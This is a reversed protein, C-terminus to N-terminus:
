RDLEAKVGDLRTKADPVMEFFKTIRDCAYDGCHACNEVGQEFGCKRIECVNCHSFYPGTKSTCGNCNIDEAKVDVGYDKSWREAVKKREADDNKQTAKYAPCAGCDLGCVAIKEAM